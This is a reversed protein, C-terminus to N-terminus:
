RATQAGQLQQQRQLESQLPPPTQQGQQGQPQGMGPILGNQYAMYLAPLGLGGLAAGTGGGLGYGLAAGGGGMLAPILWHSNQQFFDGLGGFAGNVNNMMGNANNFAQQGSNLFGDMNNFSQMGRNMFDRGQGMFEHGHQLLQQVEPRQMLGNVANDGADSLGQRIAGPIGMASYGGMLAGGGVAAGLATRGPNAMAYQMPRTNKLAQVGQQGYQLAQNGANQLMQGGRHMAQNFQQGAALGPRVARMQSPLSGGTMWANNMAQQVGPGQVSNMGRHGGVAGQTFNVVREKAGQLGQGMRELMGPARGMIANGELSIGKQVLPSITQPKVWPMSKPQAANRAANSVYQWGKQALGPLVGGALKQMGAELEAQINPGFKDGAMKVAMKLQPAEMGQGILRSFFSAQFENLGATKRMYKNLTNFAAMGKADQEDDIKAKHKGEGSASRDMGCAASLKAMAQQVGAANAKATPMQPPKAAPNSGAVPVGTLPMSPVPSPNGGALNITPKPQGLAPMNMNAEKTVTEGNKKILDLLNEHFRAHTPKVEHVKTAHVWKHDDHEKPDTKVKPNKHATRALYMRLKKGTPTTVDKTKPMLHVKLGTEEKTERHAAEEPTEGTDRHGAPSEWKGKNDDESSRRIFLVEDDHNLVMVVSVDPLLM